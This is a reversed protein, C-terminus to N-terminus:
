KWLTFEIYQINPTQAGTDCALFQPCRHVPLSKPPLFSDAVSRANAICCSRAVTHSYHRVVQSLRRLPLIAASNDCGWLPRSRRRWATIVRTGDSRGHLRVTHRDRHFRHQPKGSASHDRKGSLNIASTTTEALTTVSQHPAHRASTVGSERADNARLSQGPTSADVM